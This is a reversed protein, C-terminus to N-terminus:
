NGALQKERRESDVLEDDFAKMRTLVLRDKCAFTIVLDRDESKAAKVMVRAAELQAKLGDDSYSRMVKGHSDLVRDPIVEVVVAGTKDAIAQKLLSFLDKQSIQAQNAGVRPIELDTVCTWKEAALKVDIERTIKTPIEEARKGAPQFNNKRVEVVLSQREGALRRHHGAEAIATSTQLIAHHCKIKAPDAETLQISNGKSVAAVQGGQLPRPKLGANVQSHDRVLARGSIGVGHDVRDRINQILQDRYHAGATLKDLANVVKHRADAAASRNWPMSERIREGFTRERFVVMTQGNKEWTNEVRLEDMRGLQKLVSQYAMDAGVTVSKVM